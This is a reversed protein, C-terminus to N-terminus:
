QGRYYMGGLNFQAEASGQDAAKRFWRVAETDDRPVGRGQSYSVGLNDQAKADGQEASVRNVRAAEALRREDANARYVPWLTTAAAYIVAVCTALAVIKWFTM